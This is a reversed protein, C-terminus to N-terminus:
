DELECVWGDWIYTTTGQLEDIFNKMGAECKIFNYTSKYSNFHKKGHHIDMDWVSIKTM